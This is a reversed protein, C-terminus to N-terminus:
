EAGVAKRPNILSRGFLERKNSDLAILLLVPAIAWGQYGHTRTMWYLGVLVLAVFAFRGIKYGIHKVWYIMVLFWMVGGLASLLGGEVWLLIFGNHVARLNVAGPRLVAAGMGPGIGIFPSSFVYALSDEMAAARLGYKGASFLDGRTVPRLRNLIDLNDAFFNISVLILLGLLAILPISIPLLEPKIVFVFMVVGVLLILFPGVSGSFMVAAVGAVFLILYRAYKSDLRVWRVAGVLLGLTIHMPFHNPHMWMQLRNNHTIWGNAKAFDFTFLYVFVSVAILCAVGIVYGDIIELSYRSVLGVLFIPLLVLAFSYSVSIVIFREYDPYTSFMM